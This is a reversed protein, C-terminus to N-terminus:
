QLKINVRKIEAASSDRDGLFIDASALLDDDTIKKSLFAKAREVSVIFAVCEARENFPDYDQISFDKSGYLVLMGVYQVGPIGLDRVLSSLEPLIFTGVVRAAREKTAVRLTNFVGTSAIDTVLIGIASGKSFFRVPVGGKETLFLQLQQGTFDLSDTLSAIQNKYKEILAIEAPKRTESSKDKDPSWARVDAAVDKASRIPQEASKLSFLQWRLRGTAAEITVVEIMDDLKPTAHKPVTQNKRQQAETSIGILFVLLLM